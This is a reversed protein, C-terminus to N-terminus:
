SLVRKGIDKNDNVAHYAIIRQSNTKTGAKPSDNTEILMATIKVFFAQLPCAKEDGHKKM